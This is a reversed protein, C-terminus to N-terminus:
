LPTRLGTQYLLFIDLGTSADLGCGGSLMALLDDDDDDTDELLRGELGLELCLGRSLSARLFREMEVGLFLWGRAGDLDSDLIKGFVASFETTYPPKLKAELFFLM